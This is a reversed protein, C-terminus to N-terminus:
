MRTHELRLGLYFNFFFVHLEGYVVNIYFRTTEKYLFPATLIYIISRQIPYLCYSSCCGRGFDFTSKRLIVLLIKEKIGFSINSLSSHRYNTYVACLLIYKTDFYCSLFILNEVNQIYYTTVM